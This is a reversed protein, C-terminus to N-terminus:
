GKIANIFSEAETISAEMDAILNSVDQEIIKTEQKLSSVAQMNLNHKIFLVQDKFAGLVPKTKSEADRMAAILKDAQKRTADFQTEARKKINIDHYQELETRWQSLLKNSAKVVNDVRQTVTNAAQESDNYASNLKNFMKELDGGDFNTVSKFTELATKFEQATNQQAESAAEVRKILVDRPELYFTDYSPIGWSAGIGNPNLLQYAGLLVTVIVLWKKNKTFLKSNMLFPAFKILPNM